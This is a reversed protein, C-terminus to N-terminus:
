QLIHAVSKLSPTRKLGGDMLLGLIDMRLLISFNSFILFMQTFFYGLVWDGKWFKYKPM